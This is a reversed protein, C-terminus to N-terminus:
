RRYIGQRVEDLLALMEKKTIGADDVIRSMELYAAEPTAPRVPAMVAVPKGRRTICIEEGSKLYQTARSKFDRVTAFRM